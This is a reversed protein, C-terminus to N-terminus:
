LLYYYLSVMLQSSVLFDLSPLIGLGLLKNFVNWFKIKRRYFWSLINIITKLM